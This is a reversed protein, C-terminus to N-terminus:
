SADVQREPIFPASQDGQSVSGTIQIVASALALQAGTERSWVGLRSAPHVYALHAEDSPTQVALEVVAREM